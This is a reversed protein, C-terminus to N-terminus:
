ICEFSLEKLQKKIDNLQKEAKVVQREYMIMIKLKDKEFFDKLPEGIKEAIKISEIDVFVKSNEFNELDFYSLDLISSCYSLTLEHIIDIRNIVSKRDIFSESFRKMVSIHNEFEIYETEEYKQCLFLKEIKRIIKIAELIDNNLIEICFKERNNHLSYKYDIVMHFLYLVVGNLLIPVLMIIIDKKDM